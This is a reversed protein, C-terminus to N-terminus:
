TERRVIEAALIAGEGINQILRALERKQEKNLLRRYEVRQDNTLTLYCKATDQNIEIEMKVCLGPSYDNIQFACPQCYRARTSTNYWAGALNMCVGRACKGSVM